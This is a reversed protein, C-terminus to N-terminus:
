VSGTGPAGDTANIRHRIFDLLPVWELGFGDCADPIKPRGTKHKRRKEQTLVCAQLLLALAVVFEDCQTETGDPPTIEYRAVVKILADQLEETLPHFLEPRAKVHNAIWDDRGVLEGKVELPARLRGSAIMGDLGTWIPTFVPIDAPYHKALDLWVSTDIVYTLSPDSAM